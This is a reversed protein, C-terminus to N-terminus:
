VYIRDYHFVPHPMRIDVNCKISVRVNKSRHVVTRDILEPIVHRSNQLRNIKRKPLHIIITFSFFRNAFKWVKKHSKGDDKPKTPNEHPIETGVKDAPARFGKYFRPFRRGYSAMKAKSEWWM